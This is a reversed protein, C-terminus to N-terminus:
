VKLADSGVATATSLLKQQTQSQKVRHVMAWWAGRDIPIELCSYWLPSGHGEGPSRGLWPDFGHKKLRWCQGTCEKGGAGGPFGGFWRSAKSLRLHVAPGQGRFRQNLLGPPPCYSAKWINISSTPSWVKLVVARPCPMAIWELIRIQLIGPVSSSAPSCDTFDCLSLCLQLPKAHTCAM